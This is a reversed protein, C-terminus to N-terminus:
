FTLRVMTLAAQRLAVNAENQEATNASPAVARTLVAKYTEFSKAMAKWEEPSATPKTKAAVLAFLEELAVLVNARATEVSAKATHFARGPPPPPTMPRPPPPPTVPPTQWHPNQPPATPPPTVPPPPVPRPPTQTGVRQRHLNARRTAAAKVAAMHRQHATMAM